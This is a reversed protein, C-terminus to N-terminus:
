VNCTTATWAHCMQTPWQSQKDKRSKTPALSQLLQRTTQHTQDSLIGFALIRKATSGHGVLIYIYIYIYVYMCVYIYIFM